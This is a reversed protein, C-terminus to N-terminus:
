EKFLNILYGSFNFKIGAVHQADPVHRYYMLIGIWDSSMGRKEVVISDKEPHKAVHTHCLSCDFKSLYLFTAM